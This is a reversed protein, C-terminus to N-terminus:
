KCIVNEDTVLSDSMMSILILTLNVICIRCIFALLIQFRTLNVNLVWIYGILPLRTQIDNKIRELEVDIILVYYIYNFDM